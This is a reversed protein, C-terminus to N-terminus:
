ADLGDNSKSIRVTIPNSFIFGSGSVSVSGSSMAQKTEKRVNWLVLFRVVLLGLAVYIAISSLQEGLGLAPFFTPISSIVLIGLFAYLVYPKHTIIIHDGIEKRDYFFNM